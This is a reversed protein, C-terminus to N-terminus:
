QGHGTCARVTSSPLPMYRSPWVSVFSHTECSSPNLGRLRSLADWATTTPVYVNGIGGGDILSEIRYRKVLVEGPLLRDGSRAETPAPCPESESDVRTTEKSLM